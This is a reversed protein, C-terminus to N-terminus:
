VCVVSLVLEYGERCQACSYACLRSDMVTPMLSSVSVAQIEDDM